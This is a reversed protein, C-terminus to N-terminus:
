KRVQAGFIGTLILIIPLFAACVGAYDAGYYFAIGVGSLLTTVSFIINSYKEGVSETV